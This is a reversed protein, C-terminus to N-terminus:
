FLNKVQVGMKRKCARFLQDIYRCAAHLPSKSLKQRKKIGQVNKVFTSGKSVKKVISVM